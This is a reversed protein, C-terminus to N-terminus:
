RHDVIHVRLHHDEIFGIIPDIRAFEGLLDERHIITVEIQREVGLFLARPVFVLHNLMVSGGKEKRARLRTEKVERSSQPDFFGILAFGDELHRPGEDHDPLRRRRRSLASDRPCPFPPRKPRRSRRRQHPHQGREGRSDRSRSPRDAPGCRLSQPRTGAPLSLFNDYHKKPMVLTHGRTTQSIDLIALVDDDEYVKTSPIEGAIIKCFIDSM